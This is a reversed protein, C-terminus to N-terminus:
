GEVERWDHGEAIERVHQAKWFSAAGIKIPKPFRGDQVGRFWTAKSFPIIGRHGHATVFESCRVLGKEPFNQPLIPFARRTSTVQKPM